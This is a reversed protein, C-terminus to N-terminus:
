LVTAITREKIRSFYYIDEHVRPISFKDKQVEHRRQLRTNETGDKCM